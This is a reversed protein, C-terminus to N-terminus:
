KFQYWKDQRVHRTRPDVMRHMSTRVGNAQKWQPKFTQLKLSVRCRSKSRHPAKPCMLRTTQAADGDRSTLQAPNKRIGVARM